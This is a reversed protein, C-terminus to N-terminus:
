APAFRLSPQTRKRQAAGVAGFGLILLLWTAPEPVAAIAASSATVFNSSGRTGFTNVRYQRPNGSSQLFFRVDLGSQTFFRTGSGDLFGDGTTFYNGYSGGAGFGSGLPAIIDSGNVMGTISQISFATQGGVTMATDSTTFVGSGSVPPGFLPTSTAFEFTFQAAQIPAAVLCALASAALFRFGTM